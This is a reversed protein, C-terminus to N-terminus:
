PINVPVVAINNDFSVETFTRSPNLNVRLYYLGKPLGTIDVWQCDLSNGYLDFWGRQIGQAECDYRKECRVTAGEKVGLAQATDEMCYAQKHGERAVKGAGDLLEYKAFGEYHYHGHCSSYQFLDPRRDIPPATLDAQGQNL